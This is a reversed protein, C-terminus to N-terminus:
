QPRYNLFVNQTTRILNIFLAHCVNLDPLIQVTIVNKAQACQIKFVFVILAHNFCLSKAKIKSTDRFYKMPVLVILEGNKSARFYDSM